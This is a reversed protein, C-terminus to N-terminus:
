GEIKSRAKLKMMELMKEDPTFRVRVMGKDSKIVMIYHTDEKDLSSFDSLPATQFSDLVHSSEPAIKEVKELDTKMVTKRSNGAVIRDFDIQGDVFIYEYDVHKNPVFYILIADIIIWGFLGIIQFKKLVFLASFIGLFPMLIMAVIVMIRQASRGPTLGSKVYTEHYLGDM